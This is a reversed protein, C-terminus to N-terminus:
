LPLPRFLIGVRVMQVMRLSFYIGKFQPRYAWYLFVLRVSSCVLNSRNVFHNHRDWSVRQTAYSPVVSKRWLHQLTCCNSPPSNIGKIERLTRSSIQSNFNEFLVTEMVGRHIDPVIDACGNCWCYVIILKKSWQKCIIVLTAM